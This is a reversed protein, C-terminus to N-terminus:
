PRPDISIASNKKIIHWDAIMGSFQILPLILCIPQICEITSMVSSMLIISCTSQKSSMIFAWYPGSQM